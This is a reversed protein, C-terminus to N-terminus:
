VAHPRRHRLVKLELISRKLLAQADAREVGKIHQAMLAKAAAHAKKIETENLEDAHAARSVLISVGESTVEMFGGGIALFIEKNKTTVKVEGEVLSTFLAIHHALIEITGNSTPVSVSTVDEAFANRLPTIIDLHFLEM